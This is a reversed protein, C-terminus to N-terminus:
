SAPGRTAWRSATWPAFQWVDVLCGSIEEMWSERELFSEFVALREGQWHMRSDALTDVQFTVGLLEWVRAVECREPLCEDPVARVRTLLWDGIGSTVRMFSNKFALLGIYANEQLSHDTFLSFSSWKLADHIGCGVYSHLELLHYPFSDSSEADSDEKSALCAWHGSM